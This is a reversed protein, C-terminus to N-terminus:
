TDQFPLLLNLQSGSQMSYNFPDTNCLTTLSASEKCTLSPFVRSVLSLVLGGLFLTGPWTLLLPFPGLIPFLGLITSFCFSSGHAWLWPFSLPLLASASAAPPPLPLKRSSPKHAQPLLETHVSESLCRAVRGEPEGCYTHCHSFGSRITNFMNQLVWGVVNHLTGQSSSRISILVYSRTTTVIRNSLDLPPSAVPSLRGELCGSAGERATSPFNFLELLLLLLVSYPSM